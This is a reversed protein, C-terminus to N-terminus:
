QYDEENEFLITSIGLTLVAFSLVVAMSVLAPFKTMEHAVDADLLMFRLMDVGYTLPNAYCAPLLWSPLTEIPIIAGSLLFIPFIVFNVILSFGHPDNMLAAFILGLGIFGFSIISMLAIAPVIMLPSSIRFGVPISLIMILISQTLSVSAGGLARGIVISLRSVPAVMVERMFGFQKDWLVSIGAFMSSFLTTMGIIGPTLFLVYDGPPVGPIEARRFGLSMFVLFFFPMGLAGIIRSKARYMNKMERLWLVYVAQWEM